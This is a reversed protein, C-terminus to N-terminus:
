TCIQHDALNQSQNQSEERGAPHETTTSNMNQIIIQDNNHAGCITYLKLSIATALCAFSIFALFYTFAKTLYWPRSERFGNEMSYPIEKKKKKKKDHEPCPLTSYGCTCTGFTEAIDLMNQDILMQKPQTHHRPCPSPTTECTCPWDKHSELYAVRRELGRKEEATEQLKLILEDYPLDNRYAMM